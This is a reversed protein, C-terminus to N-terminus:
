SSEMQRKIPNKRSERKLYLGSHTTKQIVYDGYGDRALIDVLEGAMEIWEMELVDIGISSSQSPPYHSSYHPSKLDIWIGEQGCDVRVYELGIQEDMYRDLMSRLKFLDVPPQWGGDTLQQRIQEAKKYLASVLPGDAIAEQASYYNSERHKIDRQILEM